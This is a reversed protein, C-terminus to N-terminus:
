NAMGALIQVKRDIIQFRCKPMGPAQFRSNAMWDSERAEENAFLNEVAFLNWASCIGQEIKLDEFVIVSNRNLTSGCHSRPFSSCM